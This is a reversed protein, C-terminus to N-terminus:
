FFDISSQIRKPIERYGAVRTLMSVRIIKAPVNIDRSFFGIRIRGRSLFASGEQKTFGFSFPSAMGQTIRRTLFRASKMAASKGGRRHLLVFLFGRLRSAITKDSFRYIRAAQASNQRFM